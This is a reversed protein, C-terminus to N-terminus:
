LSQNNWAAVQLLSVQILGVYKLARVKWISTKIYYSNCEYQVCVYLVHLAQIYEIINTLSLFLTNVIKSQVLILM